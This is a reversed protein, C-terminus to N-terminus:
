TEENKTLEIKNLPFNLVAFEGFLEKAKVDYARAADEKTKFYNGIYYDKGDKAIIARWSKGGKYPSVGKYGSKNRPYKKKNMLNQKQTVWRCNDPSYGKDNDIRDLQYGPPREGMDTLFNKFSNLWRDCVRVGKAGCYRYSPENPNYCRQKM